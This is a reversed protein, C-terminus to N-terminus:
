YVLTNLLTRFSNSLNSLCCFFLDTNGVVTKRGVEYLLVDDPKYFLDSWESFVFRLLKSGLVLGSWRILKCEIQGITIMM